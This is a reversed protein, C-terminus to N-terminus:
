SLIRPNSVGVICCYYLPFQLPSLERKIQIKAEQSSLSVLDTSYLSTILLPM